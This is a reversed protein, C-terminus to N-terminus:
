SKSGSELPRDLSGNVVDVVLWGLDGPIGNGMEDGAVGRKMLTDTM